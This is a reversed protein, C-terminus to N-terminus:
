PVGPGFVRRLLDVLLEWSSAPRTERLRDLLLHANGRSVFAGACESCREVEAGGVLEGDRADEFRCEETRLPRGCRPCTMSGSRAALEVPAPLPTGREVRAAEAERALARIEGDFWDIWLGGCAECVDIEGTKTAEARMLEGCGPCLAAAGRYASGNGELRM